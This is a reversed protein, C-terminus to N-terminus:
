TTSEPNKTDIPATLGVSVIMALASRTPSRMRSRNPDQHVSRLAAVHEHDEPDRAVEGSDHGEPRQVAELAALQEVRANHAHGDVVPGDLLEDFSGPRRDDRGPLLQIRRHEVPERRPQRIHLAIEGVGTGVLADAGLDFVGLTRHEVELYRREEEARHHLSQEGGAEGLGRTHDHLLREAVVTLRRVRQRVLQVLVDVLRLQEADVVVEALHPELLNEVEPERVRHQLRHPIAVVDLRNLDRHRFAEADRIAAVEVVRDARQSVHHDVM